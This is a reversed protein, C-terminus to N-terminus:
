IAPRSRQAPRDRRRRRLAPRHRRSDGSLAAATGRRRWEDQGPKRPDLPTARSSRRSLRLHLRLYRRDDGARRDAAADDHQTAAGRHGAQGRDGPDVALASCMRAPVQRHAGPRLAAAARRDRRVAQAKDSAVDHLAAVRWTLGDQYKPAAPRRSVHLVQTPLAYAVEAIFDCRGRAEAPRDPRHHVPAYAADHRRRDQAVAGDAAAPPVHRARASRSQDPHLGPGQAPNNEAPLMLMQSSFHINDALVQRALLGDPRIGIVAM